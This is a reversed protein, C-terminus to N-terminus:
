FFPFNKKVRHKSDRFAMPPLMMDMVCQGKLISLIIIDTLLM